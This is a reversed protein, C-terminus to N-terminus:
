DAAFLAAAAAAHPLLAFANGKRLSLRGALAAAVPAQRGTTIDGWAAVDAALIFDAIENDADTAPRAEACRGHDVVIWTRRDSGSEVLVIRGAWGSAARAFEKSRNLRDQWATIGSASFLDM